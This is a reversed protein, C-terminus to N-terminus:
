SLPILSRTIPSSIINAEIMEMMTMDLGTDVEAINMARVLPILETSLLATAVLLM